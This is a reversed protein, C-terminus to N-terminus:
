TGAASGSIDCYLLDAIKVASTDDIRNNALYLLRLSGGPEPVSTLQNDSLHLYRLSGLASLADANTIRNGRLGLYELSKLNSLPSLDSIANNAAYLKKLSTLGEVASLDTIENGSIDLRELQAFESLAALDADTLGCDRLVLEKSDAPYSRGAIEVRETESFVPEETRGGDAWMLEALERELVSSETVAYGSELVEAATDLDGMCRYAKALALYAETNNPEVTIVHELTATAQEYNLEALYKEGTSLSTVNMPRVAKKHLFFAAASVGAAAGAAAIAIILIGKKKM